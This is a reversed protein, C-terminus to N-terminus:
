INFENQKFSKVKAQNNKYVYKEFFCIFFPNLWNKKYEKLNHLFCKMAEFIMSLCMVHNVTVSLKMFHM